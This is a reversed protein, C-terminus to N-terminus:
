DAKHKFGCKELLRQVTNVSMELEKAIERMSKGKIRLAKVKEISENGYKIPRGMKLNRKRKLIQIEKKLNENECRIKEYEKKEVYGNLEKIVECLNGWEEENLGIAKMNAYALNDIIWWEKPSSSKKWKRQPILLKLSDKFKGNKLSYCQRNQLEEIEEKLIKYKKEDIEESYIENIM